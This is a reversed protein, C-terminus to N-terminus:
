SLNLNNNGVGWFKIPVAGPIVVSEFEQTYQLIKLAELFDGRSLNSKM